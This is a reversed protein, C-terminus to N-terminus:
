ALTLMEEEIKYLKGIYVIAESAYKKNEDLTLM